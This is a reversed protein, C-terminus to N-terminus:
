RSRGAGGAAGFYGSYDMFRVRHGSKGIGKKINKDQQVIETQLTDLAKGTQQASRIAQEQPLTRLLFQGEFSTPVGPVMNLAPSLVPARSKHLKRKPRGMTSTGTAGVGGVQALALDASMTLVIALALMQVSFKLLQM